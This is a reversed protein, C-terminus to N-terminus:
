FFTLEKLPELWSVCIEDFMNYSLDLHTLKSLGIFADSHIHCINQNSLDLATLRALGNFANNSVKTIMNETLNLLYILESVKFANGELQQIVNNSLDLAILKPMKQICEPVTDLYNNSLDLVQLKTYIIQLLHKHGVNNLMSYKLAEPYYQPTKSFPTNHNVPMIRGVCTWTMGVCICNNPCPIHCINEDDGKPCHKEGDCILWDPVCTGGSCRLMSPCSLYDISCHHEDDGEPCDVRGDCIYHLPICYTGACKYMWPCTFHLCKRLLDGEPCPYLINDRLRYQCIEEILFRNNIGCISEISYYAKKSFPQFPMKVESDYHCRIEDINDRCQAVGDCVQHFPVNLDSCKFWHLDIISTYCNNEDSASRCDYVSDCLYLPNINTGDNCKFYNTFREYPAEIKKLTMAGSSQTSYDQKSIKWKLLSRSHSISPVPYIINYYEPTRILISPKYFEYVPELFSLIIHRIEDFLLINLDTVSVNNEFVLCKEKYSFGGLKFCAYGHTAKTQNMNTLYKLTSNIRKKKKDVCIITVNPLHVKCDTSLAHFRDLPHQVLLSPCTQRKKFWMLPGTIKTHSDTGVLTPAITSLYQVHIYDPYQITTIPRHNM